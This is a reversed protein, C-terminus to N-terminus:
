KRVEEVKVSSEVQNQDTPFWGEMAGNGRNNWSYYPVFRFTNERIGEKSKVKAPLLISYTGSLIGTDVKKVRIESEPPITELFYGLLSGANDVIFFSSM